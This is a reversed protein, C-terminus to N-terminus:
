SEKRVWGNREAWNELQEEDFVDEPNKREHVNDCAADVLEDMEFVENPKFNCGIWEVIGELFQEGFDRDQWATSM